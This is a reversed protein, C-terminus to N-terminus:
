LFSGEGEGVFIALGGVFQIEISTRIMRTMKAFRRVLIRSLLGLWNVRKEVYGSEGPQRQMLQAIDVPSDLAYVPFPIEKNTFTDEVITVAGTSLNRVVPAAEAGSRVIDYEMFEADTFGDPPVKFFSSLFGMKKMDPEQNFMAIIATFINIM